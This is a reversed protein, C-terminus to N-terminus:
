PVRVSTLSFIERTQAVRQYNAAFNLFLVVVPHVEQFM